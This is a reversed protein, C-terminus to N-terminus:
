PPVAVYTLIGDEIEVTLTKKPLVLLVKSNHSEDLPILLWTGIEPYM